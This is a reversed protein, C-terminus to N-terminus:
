YSRADNNQSPALQSTGPKDWLGSCRTITEARAQPRDHYGAAGLRGRFYALAAEVAESDTHVAAWCDALVEACLSQQGVTKMYHHAQEHAEVFRCLPRGYMECLPRSLFIAEGRAYGLRLDNVYFSPPPDNVNISLDIPSHLVCDASSSNALVRRVALQPPELPAPTACAALILLTL